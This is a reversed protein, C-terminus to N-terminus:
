GLLWPNIKLSEPLIRFHLNSLGVCFILFAVTDVCIFFDSATSTSSTQSDISLAREPNTLWIGSDWKRVKINPEYEVLQHIYVPLTGGAKAMMVKCGSSTQIHCIWTVPPSQPCWIQFNPINIVYKNRHM